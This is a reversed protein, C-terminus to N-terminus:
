RLLTVPDGVEVGWREFAGQNVELAATYEVTPTYSPCTAETCPDMDIIELITQEEGIFAVSLPIKTDKMWFGHMVPEFYMFMMGADEALSDRGMLGRERQEKTEAIEVDVFVPNEGGGLLVRGIPLGADSEKPANDYCAVLVLACMCLVLLKRM